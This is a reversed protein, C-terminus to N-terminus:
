EKTKRSKILEKLFSADVKDQHRITDKKLKYLTAPTAIKIKTTEYEITEYELDDFSFVEGVKAMIDIYFGDPAGYRIVSYHELEKFHIDEIYPDDFVSSLAGKLNAINGSTPKIFIDLDRTLRELGHLIVAVGGILIYEVNFKNLARFVSIFTQFQNRM